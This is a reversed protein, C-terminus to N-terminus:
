IGLAAFVRETVEDASGTGDVRTLLDRREYEALLPATEDRYLEQRRRILDETDDGRGQSAARRLLRATLEEVDVDLALVARLARRAGALIDDLAGIQALTRPFGDLVFGSRCDAQGLRDRVMAITVSDPVYDGRELYGRATDGLPTADSINSRFIDGTSIAPIGHHAAIREAQTGKGSGPPGMILIRNM